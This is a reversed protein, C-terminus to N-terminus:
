HCYNGGIASNATATNGTIIVNSEDAIFDGNNYFSTNNLVIIPSGNCVLNVGAKLQLGQQSFGSITFFVFLLIFSLKKM